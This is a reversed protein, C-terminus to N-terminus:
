HSIQCKRKRQLWNGLSTGTFVPLLTFVVAFLPSYWGILLVASFLWISVYIALRWQLRLKSKFYAFGASILFPVLGGSFGLYEMIREETSFHTDDLFVSVPRFMELSLGVSCASEGGILSAIVLRVIPILLCYYGGMAGVLLLSANIFQVRRDRTM